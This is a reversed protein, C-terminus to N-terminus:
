GANRVRNLADAAENYTPKVKLAQEFAEAAYTFDRASERVQGLRYWWLAMAPELEVATSYAIDAYHFKKQARFIEGIFFFATPLRDVGRPMNVTYRQMYKLSADLDKLYFYAEGMTEIIRFDERIRLAQHGWRIVDAYNGQRQLTWTLVAYTDITATGAQIEGDCIRVADNYYSNAEDTRGRSELDRGMRYIVAADPKEQATVPALVLLLIFPLVRM